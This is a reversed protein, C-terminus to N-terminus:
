RRRRRRRTKEDEDWSKSKGVDPGTILPSSFCYWIPSIRLRLQVDPFLEGFDIRVHYMLSSCTLESGIWVYNEVKWFVRCVISFISKSLSRGNTSLWFANKSWIFINENNVLEHSRKTQNKDAKKYMWENMKKRIYFSMSLPVLITHKNKSFSM